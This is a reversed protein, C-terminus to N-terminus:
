YDGASIVEGGDRTVLGALVRIDISADLLRVSGDAFLVNASEPHFSYIESDNTCNIACAGPRTYGPLTAGGVTIQCSGWQVWPGCMLAGVEQGGQWLAPRGADEAVLITRSTGDVIDAVRTIVNIGLVGDFNEVPSILGQTALAPDVGRVVAYDTCANNRSWEATKPNQWDLTRDPEASPCQLFKLQVTRAGANESVGGADTDWRYQDYLSQQELYPLLFVVWGHRSKDAVGAAPFPGSVSGPPFNGRASEFNLLALGIQKMYSQCQSRRASERSAQIAPLLLAVLMGIIAIVVLLEVLTFASDHGHVRGNIKSM